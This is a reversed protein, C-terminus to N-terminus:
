KVQQMFAEIIKAVEARTATGKPDLSGNGKGSLLGKHVAWAMATAAWDSIQDSDGYGEITSGSADTVDIGAYKAYNYIMSVLQERTIPTGPAFEGNGVGTAIGNAAAWKVYNSYYADANVDGFTASNEVDLSGNNQSWIRGLVTVLMGRNMSLDPSFQGNGTGGFLGKETVYAVAEKAWHHETDDFSGTSGNKQDDTTPTAPTTPTGTVPTTSSAGGGSNHHKVGSGSSSGSGSGTDVATWQAYLTIDNVVMLSKGPAYGTGTGDPKTNWGNFSQGEKTLTNAAAVVEDGLNIGTVSSPLVSGTGGNANYDVTYTDGPNYAVCDCDNWDASYGTKNSPYCIKLEPLTYYFVGSGMVPADGKFIVLMLKPVAYTGYADDQCFAYDDINSISEPLTVRKLATCGRFAGNGLSDINDPITIHALNYCYGFLGSPIEHIGTPINVTEISSHFFVSYGISTISNPLVVSKLSGCDKFVRDGITTVSSPIIVNKVNTNKFAENEIETITVGDIESPITVDTESGKYSYIIGNMVLYNGDSSLEPGAVSMSYSKSVTVPTAASDTASVTFNYNGVTTPTGFLLGSADFTLGAPLSDPGSLLQFTKSGNGGSVSLRHSYYDGKKITGLTNENLTLETAAPIAFTLTNSQTGGTLGGAGVRFKVPGERLNNYSSDNITVTIQTDSDRECSISRIEPGTTGGVSASMSCYNIVNSKFTDGSLTIVITQPLVGNELTTKDASITPEPVDAWAIQIGGNLSFLLALTVLWSLVKRHKM